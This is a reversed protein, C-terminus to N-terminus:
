RGGRLIKATYISFALFPGFSFILIGLIGIKYRIAVAGGVLFLIVFLFFSMLLIDDIRSGLGSKEKIDNVLLSVLLRVEKRLEGRTAAREKSSSSSRKGDDWEVQLVVRMGMEFEFVSVALPKPNPTQPKPNPTQARDPEGGIVDNAGLDSGLIWEPGRDWHDSAKLAARDVDLCYTVILECSAADAPGREM